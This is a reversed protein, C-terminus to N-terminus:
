GLVGRRMQFRSLLSTSFPTSSASQSSATPPGSPEKVTYKGEEYSDLSLIHTGVRVQDAGLRHTMLRSGEEGLLLANQSALHSLLRPPIVGELNVLLEQEENFISTVSVNAQVNSPTNHLASNTTSMIEEMTSCATQAAREADQASKKAQAVAAEILKLHEATQLWLPMEESASADQIVEAAVLKSLAQIADEEAETCVPEAAAPSAAEVESPCQSVSDEPVVEPLDPPPGEKEVKSPLARVWIRAGDPMGLLMADLDLSKLHAAVDYFTDEHCEVICYPTTSEGESPLPEHPQLRTDESNPFGTYHKIMEMDVDMHLQVEAFRM